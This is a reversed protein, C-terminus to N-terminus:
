RTQTVASAAGAPRGAEVGANNHSHRIEVRTGPRTADANVGHWGSPLQPESWLFIRRADAPSLNVCGHSMRWGYYGHWFAAHLAYSGQFYMVWPVDEISYPGDTATDGDMTTSVHKAQIRFSGSPTEFREPANRSTRRGSSILTAFVPRPGEYAVLVQEDLDVDIWKEDAGVGEPPARLTARRVNGSFVAGGDTTPFFTRPGSTIPPADALAYATLRPARAARSVRGQPNVSYTWGLESVMWAMPLTHTADLGVGQYTPADRVESLRSDIVLGGSQTLWYREGRATNRVTRDLAVYMGTTMRRILASSPDGELEDLRPRAADRPGADRVPPPAAADDSSASADSEAGRFRWPEYLRLDEATPIRRYMNSRGYSIAYRYPMSADFDPQTPTRFDRVPDLAANNGGVCLYGGGEVRFWGSPGETDRPRPCGDSGHPGSISVVVAGARLYGALEGDRRPARRVPTWSRLAVIRLGENQVPADDSAVPADVATAVDVAAADVPAERTIAAETTVTADLLTPRAGNCGASAAFLVFLSLTSRAM